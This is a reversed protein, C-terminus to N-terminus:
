EILIRHSQDRRAFHRREEIDVARGVHRLGLIAVGTRVDADREVAGPAIHQDLVDDGDVTWPLRRGRFRRPQVALREEIDDARAAHRVVGVDGLEFPYTTLPFVEKGGRGITPHAHFGSQLSLAMFCCIAHTVANAAMSNPIGATRSDAGTTSPWDGTAAMTSWCLSAAMSASTRSSM